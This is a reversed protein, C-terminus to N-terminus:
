SLYNRLWILFGTWQAGFVAWLGKIHMSNKRSRGNATDVKQEIRDLTAKTDAQGNKLNGCREECVKFTAQFKEDMRKELGDVRTDIHEKLDELEM